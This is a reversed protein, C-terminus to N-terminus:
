EASGDLASLLLSILNNLIRATSAKSAPATKAMVEPTAWAVGAFAASKFQAEPVYLVRNNTEPAHAQPFTACGPVVVVILM